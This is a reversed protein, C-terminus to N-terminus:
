VTKRDPCTEIPCSICDASTVKLGKFRHYRTCVDSQEPPKQDLWAQEYTQHSTPSDKRMQQRVWASFSENPHEMRWQEMEQPSILITTQVYM